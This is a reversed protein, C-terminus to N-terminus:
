WRLTSVQLCRQRAVAVPVKLLSGCPVEIVNVNSPAPSTYSLFVGTSPLQSPEIEVAAEDTHPLLHDSSPPPWLTLKLRAQLDM